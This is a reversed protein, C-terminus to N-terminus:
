RPIKQLLPLSLLRKDLLSFLTCITFLRTNFICFKDFHSNELNQLSSHSSRFARLSLPPEPPPRLRGVEYRLMGNFSRVIVLMSHRFTPTSHDSIPNGGYRNSNSFFGSRSASSPAPMRCACHGLFRCCLSRMRCLFPRLLAAGRCPTVRFFHPERSTSIASISFFSLTPHGFLPSQPTM